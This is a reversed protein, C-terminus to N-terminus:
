IRSRLDAPLLGPALERLDPDSIGIGFTHGLVLLAYLSGTSLSRVRPETLEAFCRTAQERALDIKGARALVIALSVRRDWPLFHDGGNRLRVLISDVAAASAAADGAADQVQALAALAGVDGPFRKLTAAVAAAREANGTEVLYEALRGAAAAPAQEDVVEFVLVSQGEFGGGVPMQYPVPRLWPPLNFRRLEDALFSRRGAFRKDLYREAFTDFFPDWSPIVLYRIGRAQLDGQAEEMTPAAAINLAAGLGAANEPDFSGIGRLSGFFCLGATEAPPAYVVIGEQGSRRTLWHALHREVLEESERPSPAVAAGTAGRPLLQTLGLAALLAAAAAWAGGAKPSVQGTTAAVALALVACDAVSWWSLEWLAFGLAVVCPGLAFALLARDVPAQTRVLLAALVLAAVPLLTAWAALSAGDRMLWAGTGAAEAAGPLPSLRAWSTGQALFGWSHTGWLIAPVTAVAAVSLAIVVGDMPRRALPGGRIRSVARALLEGAGIWALGYAPHVSELRLSGMHGPSYEALYGVLVTVGGSIAWTRWPEPRRGDRRGTWARALAGLVVGATVPVQVGVSVWVGLGGAIGALMFWLPARAGFGMGALLLLLSGLACADSLGRPDPMGPLFGSALPFLAALGVSVLAAALGGFRWGVLAAACALLLLHVLPDAYLAAREVSLGIPSGTAEHHVWAVLGLWWRYPSAANVDHGAPANEYDVHRVRLEGQAIMQQTQEIWGQSSESAEPVILERQADAYGTPSAAETVDVERARGQLASVAEVRAVRAHDSWILFGLACAPIIM